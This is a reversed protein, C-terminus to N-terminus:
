PQPVAPLAPADSAVQLAAGVPLAATLPADAARASHDGGVAGKFERMGSGLSRAMEPIRRAGFLLVVVLVILALHLPNELGM